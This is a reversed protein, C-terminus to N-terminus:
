SGLDTSGVFLASLFPGVEDTTSPGGMNLFVMATPGKSGTADQMVPPVVAAYNRQGLFEQAPWLTSVPTAAYKSVQSASARKTINTFTQRLAAM